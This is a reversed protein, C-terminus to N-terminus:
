QRACSGSFLCFLFVFWCVFGFFNVIVFGFFLVFFYQVVSVELDLIKGLGWWTAHAGGGALAGTHQSDSLSRHGNLVDLAGDDVLTELHAPHM